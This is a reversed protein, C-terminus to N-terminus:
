RRDDPRPPPRPANRLPPSGPRTEAIIKRSEATIETAVRVVTTRLEARFAQDRIDEEDLARRLVEPDFPDAILAARVRRAFDRRVSEDGEMRGRHDRLAARVIEADKPSLRDALREVIADPGMPGGPGGPGGDPFPPFGGGAVVGLLFLNAGLSVVLAVNRWGPVRISMM